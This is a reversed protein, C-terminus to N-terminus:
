SVVTKLGKRVVEVVQLICLVVVGFAMMASLKAHRTPCLVQALLPTFGTGPAATVGTPFAHPIGLALDLNV